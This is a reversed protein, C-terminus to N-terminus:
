FRRLEATAAHPVVMYFFLVRRLEATAAHPVVRCFNTFFTNVIFLRLEATAAHPVVM